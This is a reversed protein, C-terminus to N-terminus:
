RPLREEHDVWTWLAIPELAGGCDCREARENTVCCKCNVCVRSHPGLSIIPFGMLVKFAYAGVALVGAIKAAGTIAEQYTSPWYAVARRPGQFAAALGGFFLIVFLIVECHFSWRRRWLLTEVERDSKRQWPM